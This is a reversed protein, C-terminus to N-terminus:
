ATETEAAAEDETESDAEQAEAREAAEKGIVDPDIKILLHRIVDRKGAFAEDIAEVDGSECAFQVWGFQGRAFENSGAEDRVEIEYALEHMEPNQSAETSGGADTVAKHLDDELDAADEEPLTPSLLYGIEYYTKTDTSDTAM